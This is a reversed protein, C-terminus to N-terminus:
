PYMEQYKISFILYTLPCYIAVLVVLMQWQINEMKWKTPGILLPDDIAFSFHAITFPLHNPSVSFLKFAGM